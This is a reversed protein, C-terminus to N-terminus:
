LSGAAVIVNIIVSLVLQQLSLSSLKTHSSVISQKVFFKILVYSYQRAKSM